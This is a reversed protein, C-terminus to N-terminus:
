VNNGFINISKQRELINERQREREGRERDILKETKKRTCVNNYCCCFFHHDVEYIDCVCVCVSAM